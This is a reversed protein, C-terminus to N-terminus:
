IIASAGGEARGASTAAEGAGIHSPDKDTQNDHTREFSLRV